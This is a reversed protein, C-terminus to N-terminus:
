SSHGVYPVVNNVAGGDSVVVCVDNIIRFRGRHNVRPNFKLRQLFRFLLKNVEAQEAARQPRRAIHSGAVRVVRTEEKGPAVCFSVAAVGGVAIQEAPLVVFPCLHSALVGPEGFVAGVAALALVAEGVALILKVRLIISGVDVPATLPTHRALLLQVLQLFM